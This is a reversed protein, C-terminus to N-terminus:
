TGTAPSSEGASWKKRSVSRFVSDHFYCRKMRFFGARRDIVVVVPASFAVVDLPMVESGTRGATRTALM